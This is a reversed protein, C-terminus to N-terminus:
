RAHLEGKILDSALQAEEGALEEVFPELERQWMDIPGSRSGAPLADLVMQYATCLGRGFALQESRDMDAIADRLDIDAVIEGRSTTKAILV